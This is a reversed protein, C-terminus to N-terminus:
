EPIEVNILHELVKGSAVFVVDIRYGGMWQKKAMYQRSSRLIKYYKKTTMNLAPAYDSHTRTRAKVECCVLVQDLPDFAVIDIEDRGIRVNTAVIRYGLGRLHEAAVAEGDKGTKRRREQRRSFWSKQSHLTACCHHKVLAAPPPVQPGM